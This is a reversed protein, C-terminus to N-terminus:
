GPVVGLLVSEFVNFLAVRGSVRGSWRGEVPQCTYGLSLCRPFPLGLFFLVGGAPLYWDLGLTFPLENTVALAEGPPLFFYFARSSRFHPM